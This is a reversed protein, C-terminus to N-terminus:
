HQNFAVPPPTCLITEHVKEFNVYVSRLRDFTPHNKANKVCKSAVTSVMNMVNCKWKNALHVDPQLNYNESNDVLDFACVSLVVEFYLTFESNELCVAWFLCVAGFLRNCKGFILFLVM